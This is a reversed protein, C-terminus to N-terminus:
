PRVFKAPLSAVEKGEITVIITEVADGIGSIRVDLVLGERSLDVECDALYLTGGHAMLGLPKPDPEDAYREASKKM